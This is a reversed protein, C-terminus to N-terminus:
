AIIIIIVVAGDGSVGIDVSARLRRNGVTLSTCRALFIWSATTWGCVSTDAAGACLETVEAWVAIWVGHCEPRFLFNWALHLRYLVYFTLQFCRDMAAKHIIMASVTYKM